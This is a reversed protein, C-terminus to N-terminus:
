PFRPWPLTILTVYIVLENKWETLQLALIHSHLDEGRDIQDFGEAGINPVHLLRGAKLPGEWSDAFEFTGELLLNSVKFSLWSRGIKCSCGAGGGLAQRV